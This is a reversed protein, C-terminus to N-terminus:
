LLMNIGAQCGISYNYQKLPTDELPTLSYRFLPELRLNLKESIHYGIGFGGALAVVSKNFNDTEIDSSLIETDGTLYTLWSKYKANIFRNLSVGSTIYGFFRNNVLRYNIKLPVEVYFYRLQYDAFGLPHPGHMNHIPVKKFIHTQSSLQIGLELEINNVLDLQVAIGTNYGFSPHEGENRADLAFQFEDSSTLTRYSYNPSFNVGFSFKNEENILDLDQGKSFCPFLIILIFLVIEKM